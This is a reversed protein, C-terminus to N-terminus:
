SSHKVIFLEVSTIDKLDGTKVAKELDLADEMIEKLKKLSFQDSQVMTKGVVFPHMGAKSAIQSKSYGESKLQKVEYLQRFQRGLMYLIRMPPEKLALLENYLDLAKKQKKTSVADVMDFIHNQLRVTVIEDIDKITIEEQDLTYSFLKELENSLSEMNDGAKEILYRITSEKVKKNEKKILSAIWLILTREDQIKIEIARGKKAVEKYVKNRKDIENEVFVLVTSEPINAIYSGMEDKKVKFFGSNEVVVLRKEALFPMTECLMIIEHEDAGKGEFYAYNMSNDEPLIAQKLKEKYQKKLYDEEGYLLYVNKFDHKKLDDNLNKM